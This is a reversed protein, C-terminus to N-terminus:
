SESDFSVPHQNTQLLLKQLYQTIHATQCSVTTPGPIEKKGKPNTKLHNRLSVSLCAFDVSSFNGNISSGVLYYTFRFNSYDTDHHFITGTARLTAASSHFM